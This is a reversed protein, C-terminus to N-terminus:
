HTHLQENVEDQTEDNSTEANPKELSKMSPQAAFHKLSTTSYQNRNHTMAKLKEKETQRKRANEDNIRITEQVAENLRDQAEQLSEVSAIGQGDSKALHTANYKTKEANDVIMEETLQQLSNAAKVASRQRALAINQTLQNKWLPISQTVANSLKSTLDNNMNQMMRITMGSQVAVARTSMLDTIKKDLTNVGDKADQLKQFSEKSGYQSAEELEPIVSKIIEDKKLEASAIENTIDYYYNRNINFFDELLENDSQIADNTKVIENKIKDVEANISNFEKIHESLVEKGKNMMRKFISPEKELVEPSKSEIKKVLKDLMADINKVQEDNDTKRLMEDSMTSLENQSDS